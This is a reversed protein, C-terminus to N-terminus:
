WEAWGLECLITGLCQTALEADQERIDRLDRRQKEVPKARAHFRAIIKATSQIVAQQEGDLMKILEGLDKAALGKLNFHALLIQSAADRARDIVSTPGSRYVEDRFANLCQQVRSRFDEPIKNIDLRPLVGLSSRAKLTVLEEGSSIVEISIVTWITFRNDVGLLVIPHEDKKDLYQHWIGRSSFTELLKQAPGIAGMVIPHNPVFWQTPQSENAVYFRGRRIRSIPDFFDERFRYGFPNDARESVIEQESEFIIKAATIVPTPWLMRGLRGDGEYVLGEHKDIGLITMYGSM